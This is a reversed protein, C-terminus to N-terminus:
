KGEPALVVTVGWLRGVYRPFTVPEPKRAYLDNLVARALRLEARLTAQQEELTALKGLVESLDVVPPPEPEPQPQPQPDPPPESGLHNTPVVPVFTQGTVDHWAPDDALRPNGTGTGILLDWCWLAGDDRRLTITDKSIPRTPDARKMGWSAGLTHAVQEAFRITWQRVREEHDDGPVGTPVPFRDAYRRLLDKVPDPLQM